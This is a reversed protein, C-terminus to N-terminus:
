TVGDYGCKLHEPEIWHECTAHQGEEGLVLCPLNRGKLIGGGAFDHMLHPPALHRRELFVREPPVVASDVRGWKKDDEGTGVRLARSIHGEDILQPGREACSHAPNLVFGVQVM